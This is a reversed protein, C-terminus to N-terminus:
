TEPLQLHIGVDEDQAMSTRPSFLLVHLCRQCTVSVFEDSWPAVWMQPERTSARQAAAASFSRMGKLFRDFGCIPCRLLRDEATV